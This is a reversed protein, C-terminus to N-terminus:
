RTLSRLLKEIQRDIDFQRSARLAGRSMELTLVEDKSLLLMASFMAHEDGPPVLLMGEGAVERIGEVSTAIVPKGAALAEVLKIPMASSYHDTSRDKGRPIVAVRFMGFYKKLLDDRPVSGHFVVNENMGLDESIEELEKKLSGDGFIHLMVSKEEHVVRAFSRILFDLGEWKELAGFYGFTAPPIGKLDHLPIKSLDIGIRALVIRDRPFGFNSLIALQSKTSVKFFSYSQLNEFVHLIRRVWPPLKLATDQSVIGGDAMSRIRLTRLLTALPFTPISHRIMCMRPSYVISTYLVVFIEVVYFALLKTIVSIRIGKEVIDPLRPPSFPIRVVRIGKKALDEDFSRSDRNLPCVLLVNLGKRRFGNVLELYNTSDGAVGPFNSSSVVAIQYHSPIM